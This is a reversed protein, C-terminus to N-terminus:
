GAYDGTMIQKGFLRSLTVIRSMFRRAGARANRIHCKRRECKRFSGLRHRFKGGKRGVGFHYDHEGSMGLSKTCQEFIMVRNQAARRREADGFPLQDSGIYRPEVLACETEADVAGKGLQVPNLRLYEVIQDGIRGGGPQILFHQRQESIGPFQRHFRTAHGVGIRSRDIGGAPIFFRQEVRNRRGAQEVHHSAQDRAGADDGIRRRLLGDAVPDCFIEVMGRRIRIERFSYLDSALAGNEAIRHDASLSPLARAM